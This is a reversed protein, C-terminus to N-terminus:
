DRLPRGALIIGAGVIGSLLFMVILIIGSEMSAFQLAIPTPILVLTGLLTLWGLRARRALLWAIGVFLVIAFWSNAFVAQFPIGAQGGPFPLLGNLRMGIFAFTLLAGAVVVIAGILKGTPSGNTLLLGAVVVVIAFLFQLVALVMVSAPYEPGPRGAIMGFLSLSTQGLFGSFGALLLYGGLFVAIAGALGRGPRTVPAPYADAVPHPDVAPTSQQPITM